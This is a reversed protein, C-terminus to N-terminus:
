RPPEVVVLLEHGNPEVLNHQRAVTEINAHSALWGLELTLRSWDVQLRDRERNIEELEAFLQRAEHKAGVVSVGSAITAIALAFVAALELWPKNM